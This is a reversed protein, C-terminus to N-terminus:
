GGGLFLHCIFILPWIDQIIVGTAFSLNYTDSLKSATISKALKILSIPIKHPGLGKSANLEDILAEVENPSTPTLFFSEYSNLPTLYDWFNKICPTINPALQPGINFQNAIDQPNGFKVRNHIIKNTIITSKSRIKVIQNIVKWQFVSFNDNNSISFNLVPIYKPMSANKWNKGLSNNIHYKFHKHLM